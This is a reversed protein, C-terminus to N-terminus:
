ITRFAESHKQITRFAESHNQITRFAESHKQISRFAESHKQICIHELKAPVPVTRNLLTGSCHEVSTGLTRRIAIHGFLEPSSFVTRSNETLLVWVSCLVWFVSVCGAPGFCVGQDATECVCVCVCVCLCM